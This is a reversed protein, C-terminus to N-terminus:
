ETSWAPRSSLFGGAGAEWTSPNFAHAVAGPMGKAEKIQCLRMSDLTAMNAEKINRYKNHTQAHMGMLVMACVTLNHVCLGLRSDAGEVRSIRPSWSLDKAQHHTGKTM